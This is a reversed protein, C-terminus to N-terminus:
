SEAGFFCISEAFSQGTRPQICFVGDPGLSLSVIEAEADLVGFLPDEDAHWVSYNDATYANVVWM